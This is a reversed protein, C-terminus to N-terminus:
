YDVGNSALYNPPYDSVSAQLVTGGVIMGLGTM